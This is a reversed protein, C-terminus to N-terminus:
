VLDDIQSLDIAGGRRALAAAKEEPIQRILEGSERNFVQIIAQGSRVDVEFRLAPAVSRSKTNLEQVLTDLNMARISAQQQPSIKGAVPGSKGGSSGSPGPNPQVTRVAGSTVTSVRKESM